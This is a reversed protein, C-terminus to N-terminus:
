KNASGKPGQQLESKYLCTIHSNVYPVQRSFFLISYFASGCVYIGLALHGQPLSRASYIEFRTTLTRAKPRTNTRARFTSSKYSIKQRLFFPPGARTPGLRLAALECAPLSSLPGPITYSIFFLLFLFYSFVLCLLVLLVNAM